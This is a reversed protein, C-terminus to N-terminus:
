KEVDPEAPAAAIGEILTILGRIPAEAIVATTGADPITVYRQAVDPDGESILLRWAPRPDDRQYLFVLIQPETAAAGGADLTEEVDTAFLKNLAAAIRESDKLDVVHSHGEGADGQRAHSHYFWNGEADRAFRHPAGDLVVDVASIEGVTFPILKLVRDEGPGETPMVSQFLLYAGAGIAVAAVALWALLYARKM